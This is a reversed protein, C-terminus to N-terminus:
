IEWREVLWLNRVECMREEYEDAWKDMMLATQRERGLDQPTPPDFDKPTMFEIDDHVYLALTVPTGETHKLTM